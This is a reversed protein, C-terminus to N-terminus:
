FFCLRQESNKRFWLSRDNFGNADSNSLVGSIIISLYISSIQCMIFCLRLVVLLSKEISYVFIKKMSNEANVNSCDIWNGQNCPVLVEVQEGRLTINYIFPTFSYIDPPNPSAFDNILDLLINLNFIILLFLKNM